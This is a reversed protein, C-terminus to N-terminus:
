RFCCSKGDTKTEPELPLVTNLSVLAWPSQRQLPQAAFIVFILDKAQFSHRVLTTPWILYLRNGHTHIDNYEKESCRFEAFCPSFKRGHLDAPSRKYPTEWNWNRISPSLSWVWPYFYIQPRTLINSYYRESLFFFLYLFTWNPIYLTFIIM